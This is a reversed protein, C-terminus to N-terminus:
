INCGIQSNGMKEQMAKAYDEPTFQACEYVDRNWVEFYDCMGVFLADTEVEMMELYRKPMLIRGSADMEVMDVGAIFQRYLMLDKQDWLNLKAKFEENLKEWYSEPYVRVCRCVADLQLILGGEGLKELQKRYVAPVFLRGKNDAKAEVKSLFGMM